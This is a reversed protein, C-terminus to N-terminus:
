CPGNAKKFPWISAMKIKLAPSDEHTIKLMEQFTTKQSVELSIDIIKFNCSPFMHLGSISLTEFGKHFYTNQCNKKLASWDAFFNLASALMRHLPTPPLYVEGGLSWLDM